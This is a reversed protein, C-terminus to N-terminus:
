FLWVNLPRYVVTSLPYVGTHVDPRPGRGEGAEDLLVCARFGVRRLDGLQRPGAVRPRQRAAEVRRHLRGGGRRGLLVGHLVTDGQM